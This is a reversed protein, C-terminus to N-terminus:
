CQQNHVSSLVICPCKAWPTADSRLCSVHYVIQQASFCLMIPQRKMENNQLEEETRKHTNQHKRIDWQHTLQYMYLQLCQNNKQAYYKDNKHLKYYTYKYRTMKSWKKKTQKREKLVQRFGSHKFNYIKVM